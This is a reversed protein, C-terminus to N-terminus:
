LNRLLNWILGPSRIFGIAAAVRLATTLPYPLTHIGGHVRITAPVPLDPHLWDHIALLGNLCRSQEPTLTEVQLAAAGGFAADFVPHNLSRTATIAATNASVRIPEPSASGVLGPTTWREATMIKGIYQAAQYSAGQIGVVTRSAGQEHSGAYGGGSGLLNLSALLTEWFPREQCRKDIDAIDAKNLATATTPSLLMTVSGICKRPLAGVIANMAATLRLERAQGAAYAYLCLEVPQDGAFSEITALAEAPQMLLNVGATAWSLTGARDFAKILTEPPPAIDLWLVEAGAQLLLETPAMEANAGMVVVKKGTLDLMGDVLQHTQLWDLANAATKNILNRDCLLGSLSQLNESSHGRYCFSPRCQPSGNAPVSNLLLPERPTKLYDPLAWDQSEKRYQMANVLGAALQQAIGHRHVSTIRAAEFRPLFDVYHKRFAKLNNSLPTQAFVEPYCEIADLLLSHLLSAASEGAKLQVGDRELAM